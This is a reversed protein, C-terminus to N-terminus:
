LIQTHIIRLLQTHSSPRQRLLPPTSRLRHPHGVFKQPPKILERLNLTPRQQIRQATRSPPLGCSSPSAATLTVSNTAREPREIVGAQISPRDAPNEEKASPYV